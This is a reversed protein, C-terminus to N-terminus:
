KKWIPGFKQDWSGYLQNTTTRTLMKEPNKVGRKRMDATSDM